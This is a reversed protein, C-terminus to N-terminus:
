YFLMETSTAVMFCSMIAWARAARPERAAEVTGYFGVLVEREHPEPDRGLLRRYLREVAAGVEPAARRTLAGQADVPLGRFVVGQAPAALDRDVRSRCASLVIRDVVLPTTVSTNEIPDVIGSVYPEAGRLAIRHVDFADSTGLETAVQARTLELAQALENQLVAGGKFRVRGRAATAIPELTPIAPRDLGTAADGGMATADEAAEGDVGVIAADAAGAGADRRGGTFDGIWADAIIVGADYDTLDFPRITCGSLGLALWLGLGVESARRARARRARGRRALSRHPAPRAFM